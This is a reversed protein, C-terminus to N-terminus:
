TAPERRADPDLHRGGITWRGTARWGEYGALWDMTWPVTTEALADTPSWEGGNPDFLCLSVAGDQGYYVHPLRGEADGPRARLAPSVIRVRPQLAKPDLREIALPARYVLSVEYVQLLPRLPGRWCAVRGEQRVVRLMPWEAEMASIQREICLITKM